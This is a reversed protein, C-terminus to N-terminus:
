NDDSNKRAEKSCYYLRENEERGKGEEGKIDNRRWKGVNKSNRHSM